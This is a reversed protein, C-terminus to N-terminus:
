SSQWSLRAERLVSGKVPQPMGPFAIPLSGLLVGLFIGVFLTILNPERLRKMSNGLYNSLTELAAETGVATLRDGMQLELKPTVILEVGARHVRTVNVGFNSRLRLQGM